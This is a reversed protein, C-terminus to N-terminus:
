WFQISYIIAFYSLIHTQGILIKRTTLDPMHSLIVWFCSPFILVLRLLGVNLGHFLCLWRQPNCAWYLFINSTNLIFTSNSTTDLCLTSHLVRHLKNQWLNLIQVNYNDRGDRASEHWLYSSPHTSSCPSVQVLALITIRELTHTEEWGYSMSKYLLTCADLSSHM